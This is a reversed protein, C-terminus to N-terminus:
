EDGALFDAVERLSARVEPTLRDRRDHSSDHALADLRAELDAMLESQREQLAALTGRGAESAAALIDGAHTLCWPASLVWERWTEDRKAHGVLRQAASAAQTIENECVSCDWAPRTADRIHKAARLGGSNELARRRAGLMSRLFISGGVGDGNGATDAEVAARVHRPCFGGGKVFRDRYARDTTHQYLLSELYRPAVAAVQTCMPCGPGTLAEILAEDGMSRARPELRAAKGDDQQM